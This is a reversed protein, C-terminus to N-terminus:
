FRARFGLQFQRQEYGSTPRFGSGDAPLPVAPNGAADVVVVSSVSATQERNFINKFEGIIEARVRSGVPVFRAYRLDVNYRAPLYM